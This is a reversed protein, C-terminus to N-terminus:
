QPFETYDFFIVCLSLLFSLFLFMFFNKFISHLKICNGQLHTLEPLFLNISTSLRTFHSHISSVPIFYDDFHNPLLKNYYSHM